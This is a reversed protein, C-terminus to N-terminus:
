AQEPSILGHGVWCELQEPLASRATGPPPAQTTMTSHHM